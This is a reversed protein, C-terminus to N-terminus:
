RVREPSLDHLHNHFIDTYKSYGQHRLAINCWRSLKRAARVQRDTWSPHIYYDEESQGRKWLHPNYNDYFQDFPRFRCNSVQVRWRYLCLIKEYIQEHRLNNQKMCYGCVHEFIVTCDNDRARFKGKYKGCIECLIDETKKM